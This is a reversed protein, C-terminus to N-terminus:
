LHNVQTESSHQSKFSFAGVEFFVQSWIASWNSEIPDDNCWTKRWLNFLVKIALGELFTPIAFSCSKSVWPGLPYAWHTRNSIKKCHQVRVVRPEDMAAITWQKLQAVFFVQQMRQSEMSDQNNSLSGQLHNILFVYLQATTWGRYMRCGQLNVHFMIMSTQFIMKSELHPIPLNWTLRGPHSCGPAKKENQLQSEYTREM